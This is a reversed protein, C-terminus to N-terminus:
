DDNLPLVKLHSTDVQLTAAQKRYVSDLLQAGAEALDFDPEVEPLPLTESRFGELLDAGVDALEYATTDIDAADMKKKESPDLLDGEMPRLSIGSVDVDFADPRSSEEANLLNSGAPAISFDATESITTPRSPATSSANMAASREQVPVSARHPKVAEAVPRIQVQAGAKTLTAKYKEATSQDLNRKLPIAGGTFLAEIKAADVKFLQALRSKVDNINHGSVIDGRFVVDFLQDAM